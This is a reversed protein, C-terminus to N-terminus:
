TNDDQAFNGGKYSIFYMLVLFGIFFHYCM